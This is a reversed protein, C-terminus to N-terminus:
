SHPINIPINPENLYPTSLGFMGVEKVRGVYHILVVYAGTGIVVTELRIPHCGTLQCQHM